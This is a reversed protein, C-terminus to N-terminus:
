VFCSDTVYCQYWIVHITCLMTILDCFDYMFLYWIVSTLCLMWKHYCLDSIGDIGFWLLRIYYPYSMVFTLYLMLDCIVSMSLDSMSCQYMYRIVSTPPPPTSLFVEKYLAVQIGGLTVLVFTVKIFSRSGTYNM